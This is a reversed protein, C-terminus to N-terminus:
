GCKLKYSADLIATAQPAPVSGLSDALDKWSSGANRMADLRAAFSTFRAAGLHGCEGSDEAAFLGTTLSSLGAPQAITTGKPVVGLIKFAVLARADTASYEAKTFMQIQDSVSPSLLEHSRIAIGILVAGSCTLGFAAIRATHGSAFEESKQSLGFFSALLAAAVSLFSGVVEHVSLGLLLGTLFGLGAGSIVDIGTRKSIV